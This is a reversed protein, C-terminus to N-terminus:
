YTLLTKPAQRPDVRGYRDLPLAPLKRQLARHLSRDSQGIAAREPILRAQHSQRDDPRLITRSPQAMLQVDPHLAHALTSANRAM